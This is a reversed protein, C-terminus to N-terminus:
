EASDDDCGNATEWTTGRNSAAAQEDMMALVARLEAAHRAGLKSLASDLTTRVTENTMGLAAGIEEGDAGEPFAAVFHDVTFGDPLCARCDDVRLGHSCREVRGFRVDAGCKTSCTRVHRPAIYPAGCGECARPQIKNAEHGCRRSCYRTSRKPSIIRQGCGPRACTRLDACTM